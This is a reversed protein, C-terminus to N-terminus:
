FLPFAKIKKLELLLKLLNESDTENLAATPEDLILLKVNKKIISQRNRGIAAERGRNGNSTNRAIGKPWSKRPAKQIPCLNGAM